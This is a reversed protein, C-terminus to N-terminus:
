AFGVATCACISLTYNMMMIMSKAFIHISERVTRLRPALVRAVQIIQAAMAGRGLWRSVPPRNPTPTKPTNKALDRGAEGM